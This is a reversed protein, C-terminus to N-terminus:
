TRLIGMTEYFIRPKLPILATDVFDDPVISGDLVAMGFTM